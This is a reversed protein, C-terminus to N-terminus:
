APILAAECWMCKKSLSNIKKGCSPCPVAKIASKVQGDLDGDKADIFHKYHKFETASFVGNQHCLAALTKVLLTLHAVERNLVEVDHRQSAKEARDDLGMADWLMIAGKRQGARTGDIFVAHACFGHRSFKATLSTPALCAEGRS